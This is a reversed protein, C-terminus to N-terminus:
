EDGRIIENARNLFQDGVELGAAEATQLNIILYFEGIEVPLEGPAAGDFILDVLHAAQRGNAFVNAGYSFLPGLNASTIHAHPIGREIAKQAWALLYGSGVFIDPLTFIADVDAPLNEIAPPVQETTTFYEVVLEVGAAEAIPRIAELGIVAPAYGEQMPIYVQQLDPFMELLLEFRAVTVPGIDVGTFNGGPQALSEAYGSEVAYTVIGAVVPITETAELAAATAGNTVTFILDVGDSVYAQAAAQLESESTIERSLYTINQGETYGLEAMGEKLGEIVPQLLPLPNLIGVRFTRSQEPTTPSCASLAFVVIVVILVHLKIQRYASM